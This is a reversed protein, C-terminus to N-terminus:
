QKTGRLRLTLSTSPQSDYGLNNDIKMKEFQFDTVNRVSIYENNM